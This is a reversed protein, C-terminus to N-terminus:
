KNHINGNRFRKSYYNYEKVLYILNYYRKNINNITVNSIM